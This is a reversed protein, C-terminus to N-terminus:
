RPVGYLRTPALHTTDPLSPVQLRSACAHRREKDRKPQDVGSNPSCLLTRRGGLAVRSASQSAMLRAKVWDWNGGGALSWAALDSTKKYHRVQTKPVSLRVPQPLAPCLMTQCPMPMPAAHDHDHDHDNATFLPDPPICPATAPSARGM